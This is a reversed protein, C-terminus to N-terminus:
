FGTRLGDPCPSQESAGTEDGINGMADEINGVKSYWHDNECLLFVSLFLAIWSLGM